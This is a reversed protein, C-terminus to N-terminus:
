SQATDAEEVAPSRMNQFKERQEAETRAAAINGAVKAQEWQAENGEGSLIRGVLAGIIGLLLGWWLGRWFTM